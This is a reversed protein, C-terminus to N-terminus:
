KWQGTAFVNINGLIGGYGWAVLRCIDKDSNEDSATGLGGAGIDVLTAFVAPAKTFLNSPFNCRMTKYQTSSESSRNDIRSDGESDKYTDDISGWCKSIGSAWKEYIWPGETGQELIYDKSLAQLAAEVDAGFTDDTIIYFCNDKKNELANYEEQNGVWFTLKGGKNAEKLSEIYGGAAIDKKTAELDAVVEAATDNCKKIAADTDERVQSIAAEADQRTAAIADNCEQLVENYLDKPPEEEHVAGGCLISRRCPIRAGTTTHLDGSYVGVEVQAIDSLVPVEVSDGDFVADKSLKQGNKTYSFRATKVPFNDWESDFSFHIIYDKNGCVILPSGLAVAEKNNIAIQIDPM